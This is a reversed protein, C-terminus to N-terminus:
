TRVFKRKMRSLAEVLATKFLMAVPLTQPALYPTHSVCYLEYANLLTETDPFREKLEAHERAVYYRNVFQEHAFVYGNSLLIDEWQAHTPIRSNPAVAELTIIWPRHKDLSLGELVEREFGEVDIKLFHIERGQGPLAEELIRDLRRVPITRRSKVQGTKEMLAMVDPDASSCGENVCFSLEREESGAGCCVNIDEPRDERLERYHEELPEINIGRWGHEYFLKTVSCEWPSNAGVDVYFGAKVGHLAHYLVLDEYGQAFLLVREKVPL